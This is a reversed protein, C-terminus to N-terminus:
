RCARLRAVSLESAGSVWAWGVDGNGYVVFDTEGQADATVTDPGLLVGGDPGLAWLRYGAGGGVGLLLGEDYPALQAFSGATVWRPPDAGASAVRTLGVNAEGPAQPSTFAVWLTGDVSATGGLTAGSRGACNGSPEEHVVTRRSRVDLYIAKTPYCDSLCVQRFASGDHVLRVQLSHSCGWEFAGSVPAPAGTTEYGRLLDGQHEGRDGWNQTHGFTLAYRGGGYALRAYDGWQRRIWKAGSAAHDTGGVVDTEFAPTGDAGFGALVMRDPARHVLVAFGSEHAALGRLEQGQIMTLDDGARAGAPTLPTVHVTSDDAQWALLARDGVTALIPPTEPSFPGGARNLPRRPAVNVVRVSLREALSGPCGAPVCRLGSAEFGSDCRCAARDGSAECRGHGDCDVGVCPDAVGSDFVPAGDTAGGDSPAADPPGSGADFEAGGDRGPECVCSGWVGDATCSQLGDNPGPCSCSRRSEASCERSELVGGTCAASLVTVLAVALARALVKPTGPRVADKPRM